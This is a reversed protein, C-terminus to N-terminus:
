CGDDDDVFPNSGALVSNTGRLAAELQDALMMVPATKEVVERPRRPRRTPTPLVQQAPLRRLPKPSQGPILGCLWDLRVNLTRSLTVAVEISPLCRATLMNSLHSGSIACADALDCNRLGASRQAARLRLSFDHLNM